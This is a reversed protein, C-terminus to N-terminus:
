KGIKTVADAKTPTGLGTMVSSGKGNADLAGTAATIATGLTTNTATVETNSSVVPVTVDDFTYPTITGNAVAPTVSIATGLTTNTATVDAFTYPTITGNSVAPTVSIATGLTPKSGNAGSIVLTGDSVTFSWTSASGANTVNPISVATGAKAVDKATGATAKSATVTSNGTVNPISVATGASAVNKATGAKAISAKTATGFVTNTATVSSNGTVNPITTTVLKSTAGPYSKVFSDTTTSLDVDTNGIKEWTYQTTATGGNDVTIYEDFVDSTDHSHPVLYIAHLTDASATPLSEVKLLTFGAAAAQRAVEDVFAYTAGNPLTVQKIENAM